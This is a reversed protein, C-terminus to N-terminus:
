NEESYIRLSITAKTNDSHLCLEVKMKNSALLYYFKNTPDNIAENGKNTFIIRRGNKRILHKDKSESFLPFNAEREVTFGTTLAKTLVAKLSDYKKIAITTDKQDWLTYGDKDKKTLDQYPFDGMAYECGHHYSVEMKADLDKFLGINTGADNMNAGPIIFTTKYDGWIYKEARVLNFNFIAQRLLGALALAFPNTSTTPFIKTNDLWEISGLGMSTTVTGKEGHRGNAIIISYNCTQPLLYVANTEKGATDYFKLEATTEKGDESQGKVIIMPRFTNTNGIANIMLISGKGLKYSISGFYYGDPSKFTDSLIFTNEVFKQILSQANVSAASLM